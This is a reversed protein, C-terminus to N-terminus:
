SDTEPPREGPEGQGGRLQERAQEFTAGEEQMSQWGGYTVALASVLAVFVGFQLNTEAVKFGLIEIDPQFILRLVVMLTALAGLATTLAGTAVPMAVTRSTATVVALGLATVAAALIILNALTGLFGQDDWAGLDGAQGPVGAVSYWNLFLLAILLVAGGIAAVLEGGRVKSWDM